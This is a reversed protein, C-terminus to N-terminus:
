YSLEIKKFDDLLRKEEEDLEHKGPKEEYGTKLQKILKNQLFYSRLEKVHSRNIDFAESDNGEKMAASDYYIPRNYRLTKEYVFSLENNLLYYETQLQYTEGFEHVFFKQPRNHLYYIRILGGETSQNLDLSDIKTWEKVSNIRKFNEKITKLLEAITDNLGPKYFLSDATAEQTLQATNIGVAATNDKTQNIIKDQRYHHCSLITVAFFLIITKM